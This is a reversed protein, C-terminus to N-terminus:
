QKKLYHKYKEAEEDTLIFTFRANFLNLVNIIDYKTNVESMDIKYVSKGQHEEKLKLKKRRTSEQLVDHLVEEIEQRRRKKFFKIM